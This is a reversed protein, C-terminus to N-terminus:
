STSAVSEGALLAVAELQSHVGLKVLVNSIHTRVTAVSICLESAIAENRQGQALMGVVERERATLRDTKARVDAQRRREAALEPLLAAVERTDILSHGAAAARISDLVQSIECGKDLFGVAGAEVAEVMVTPRRHGSVVLVKSRPSVAAIQRTATLGNVPGALDIDMLVVDPQSQQALAVAAEASVVPHGALVLDPENAVVAALADTLVKHDDCILVSTRAEDM